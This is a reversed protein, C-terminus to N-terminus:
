CCSPPRVALVQRGVLRQARNMRTSLFRSDRSIVEDRTFGLVPSGAIAEVSEKIRLNGIPAPTCRGLLYLDLNLGEPREGGLRKLLFRRAAGSPLIDFLFRLRRRIEGLIGDSLTLQVSLWM